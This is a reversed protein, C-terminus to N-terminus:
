TIKCAIEVIREIKSSLGLKSFHFDKGHSEIIPYFFIETYLLFMNNINTLMRWTIIANVGSMEHDIKETFIFFIFIIFLIFKIMLFISSFTHFKTTHLFFFDFRKRCELYNGYIITLLTSTIVNDKHLAAYYWKIM